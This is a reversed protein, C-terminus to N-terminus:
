KNNENDKVEYEEIEYQKEEYLKNKLYEKHAKTELKRLEKMANEKSLYVAEIWEYYDESTENNNGKIIYIKM